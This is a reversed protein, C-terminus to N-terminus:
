NLDIVGGILINQNERAGPAAVQVIDARVVVDTSVSQARSGQVSGINIRQSTAQNPAGTQSISGNVVARTNVTGTTREASGISIIQERQAATGGLTQTLTAGVTADTTARGSASEIAGVSIRQSGGDGGTLVQVTNGTLTGSAIALTPNGGNVSGVRLLQDGTTASQILGASVNARAAIFGGNRVDFVNGIEAVQNARGSGSQSQTLGGGSVQARAVAFGAQAIQISGIRARQGRGEANPAADVAQTIQASVVVDTEGTRLDATAIEGIRLEQVTSNRAAQTIGPGSVIARTTLSGGRANDIGGVGITQVSGGGTSSQVVSARVIGNADVNTAGIVGSLRGIDVVQLENANGRPSGSRSQVLSGVLTGSTQLSGAPNGIAIAGGITAFQNNISSTTIQQSTQTVSGVVTARTVLSNANSTQAQALAAFALSLAAALPTAFVTNM